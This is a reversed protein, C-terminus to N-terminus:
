IPLLVLVLAVAAGILSGEGIMTLARRRDAARISADVPVESGLAGFNEIGLSGFRVCFRYVVQLWTVAAGAAFPWIGLRVLPPAHFGVLGLAVVATAVSLAIAIRRRRAIEAPGINCRPGISRDLTMADLM